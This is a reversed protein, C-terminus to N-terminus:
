FTKDYSYSGDESKKFERMSNKYKKLMLESPEFIIHLAMELLNFSGELEGDDGLEYININLPNFISHTITVKEINLPLFSSASQSLKIDELSLSNYIGFIKINVSKIDASKISKFFVEADNLELTFGSDKIKENSIIVDYKKLENELAFYINEKPTFYMLSSIFFLVFAFFIALKRVM